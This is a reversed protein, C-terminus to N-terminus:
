FIIEADDQPNCWKCAVTDHPGEGGVVRIEGADSCRWCKPWEDPMAAYEAEIDHHEYDYDDPPTTLWRDFARGDWESRDRM